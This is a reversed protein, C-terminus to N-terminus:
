SDFASVAARGDVTLRVEFWGDTGRIKGTKSSTVDYRGTFVQTVVFPPQLYQGCIDGSGELTAYQGHPGEIRITAEGPECDGPEPMTGDVARLSALFTGDFPDGTLPGSAVATDSGVSTYTGLGSLNVKPKPAAQASAMPALALAATVGATVLAARKNM